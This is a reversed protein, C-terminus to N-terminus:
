AATRAFDPLRQATSMASLPDDGATPWRLTCVFLHAGAPAVIPGIAARIALGTMGGGHSIDLGPLTWVVGFLMVLAGAIVGM